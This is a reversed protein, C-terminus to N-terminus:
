GRAEFDDLWAAELRDSEAGARTGGDRIWTQAYLPGDQGRARRGLWGSRRWRDLRRDAGAQGRPSWEACRRYEWNGLLQAIGGPRLHEAPAAIM